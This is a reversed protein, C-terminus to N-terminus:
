AHPISPHEEVLKVLRDQRVWTAAVWMRGANCADLGAPILAMMVEAKARASSMAGDYLIHNQVSQKSPGVELPPIHLRQPPVRVELLVIM